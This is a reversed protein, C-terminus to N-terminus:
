TGCEYTLLSVTQEHTTGNIYCQYEIQLYWVSPDANWNYSVTGNPYCSAQMTVASGVSVLHPVHMLHLKNTQISRLTLLSIYQLNIHTSFSLLQMGNSVGSIHARPIYKSLLTTYSTITSLYVLILTAVVTALVTPVVACFM